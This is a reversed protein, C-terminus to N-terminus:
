ILMGIINHSPRSIYCSSMAGLTGLSGELFNMIYHKSKMPCYIYIYEGKMTHYYFHKVM